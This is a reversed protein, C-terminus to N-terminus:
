SVFQYAVVEEVVKVAIDVVRSVVLAEVVEMEVEVVSLM